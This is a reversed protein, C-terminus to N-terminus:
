HPATQCSPALRQLIYRGDEDEFYALGGPICSVITGMGYGITEKLGADLDMERGDLDSNESIVWSKSGAGMSVVPKIVAASNQQNPPIRLADKGDLDRFHTLESTFKARHKPDSLFRLYREQRNQRIFAKITQEEHNM